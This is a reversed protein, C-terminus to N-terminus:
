ACEYIKGEKSSEGTEVYSPSIMSLAARAAASAKEGTDALTIIHGIRDRFDGQLEVDFPLSKYLRVDSVDPAREADSLGNVHSIRGNRDPLLFRISTRNYRTVKPSRGSGTSLRISEEILNIGSALRVLEPLFGGALRPNIEIIRPRSRLDLKLEVHVPGWDLKIERCVERVHHHIANRTESALAAPFDHGIEVFFPEKGLHKRTIGVPEGNFIEVSYEEGSIYEELLVPASSGAHLIHTVQEKVEDETLCLRVGVSGSGAVPKVVVPLGIQRVAEHVDSLDTIEAFRLTELGAGQLARRLAAKNRCTRVATLSPGSFRLEQTLRAVTEIFYESSTMIGAVRGLSALHRCASLLSELDSTDCTVVEVDTDVLFAYKRPDKVLLVPEFGLDRAVGFFLPGTGSTNSEIFVVYSAMM